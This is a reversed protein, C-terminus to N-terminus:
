EERNRAVLHTVPTEDSHSATAPTARCVKLATQYAKKTRERREEPSLKSLDEDLMENFKREFEDDSIGKRRLKM